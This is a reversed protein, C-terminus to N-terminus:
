KPRSQGTPTVKAPKPPPYMKEVATWRLWRAQSEAKTVLMRDLMTTGHRAASRASFMSDAGHRTLSEEKIENFLVETDAAAQDLYPYGPVPTCRPVVYPKPEPMLAAQCGQAHASAGCEVENIEDIEDSDTWFQASEDSGSDPGAAANERSTEDDEALSLRSLASESGTVDDANTAMAVAETTDLDHSAAVEVVKKTQEAGKVQSCDM